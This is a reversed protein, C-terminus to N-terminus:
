GAVNGDRWARLRIRAYEAFDTVEAYEGRVVFRLEIGLLGLLPGRHRTYELELGHIRAYEALEAVFTKWSLIGAHFVFTEERDEDDPFREVGGSM